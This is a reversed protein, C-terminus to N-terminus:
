RDQVEGQYLEAEVSVLGAGDPTYVDGTSSCSFAVGYTFDKKSEIGDWSYFPDVGPAGQSWPTGPVPITLFPVQDNTPQVTPLQNPIPWDFFMLWVPNVSHNYGQVERLRGPGLFLTQFPGVLVVPPGDSAFTAKKWTTPQLDQGEGDSFYAIVDTGMTSPADIVGMEDYFVRAEVYFDSGSITKPTGALTYNVSKVGLVGSTIRILVKPIGPAVPASGPGSTNFPYFSTRVTVTSPANEGNSSDVLHMTAINTWRGGIARRRQGFNGKLIRSVADGM